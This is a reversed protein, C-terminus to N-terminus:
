RKGFTSQAAARRTEQADDRLLFGADVTGTTAKTVASVYSGHNRYLSKLTADDFPVHSGFLFCFAQGSNSGDNTATPVAHQPLQIGGLQNGFADRAKTTPSTWSLRPAAPPRTGDDIWDVLHSYAANLAHHFPIRSFPPRNCVYPQSGPIDRGVRPAFTAYEKWGTHSTGAIEWRVFSDTDAENSATQSSVDGEAQVRMVPVTLAKNLAAQSGHIMFGDLLGHQPQIVNYYTALRTASQSHGTAIIREVALGALPDVSDPQRLLRAAQSYIDWSASNTPSDTGVTFGQYRQPNWAALHNVGVTQASVGVWAHGNRMIHENSTSWNVDLDYGGTVNQWELLVTGDFRQPAVPRRVVIRTKYPQTGIVAGANSFRSATGSIAFEEEVYGNRALDVDHGRQGASLEVGPLTATLFPTSEATIPLPAVDPIAQGPDLQAASPTAGFATVALLSCLVAALATFARRSRTSTQM